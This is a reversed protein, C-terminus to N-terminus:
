NEMIRIQATLTATLGADADNVKTGNLCISREITLDGFPPFGHLPANILSEITSMADDLIDDQAEDSVGVALIGILYEADRTPSNPVESLAEIHVFRFFQVLVALSKGMPNAAKTFDATVLADPMNTALHSVIADRIGNYDVAM